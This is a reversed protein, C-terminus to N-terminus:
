RVRVTSSVLEKDILIENGAWDDAFMGTKFDLHNFLPAHELQALISTRWNTGM